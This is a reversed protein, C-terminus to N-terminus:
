YVVTVTFSGSYSGVVQTASLSARAAGVLLLESGGAGITGNTGPYSQFSGVSIEKDASGGGATIMKVTGDSPLTISYARGPDGAVTFSGNEPSESTGPAVTKTNDGQPASGFDLDSAKTISLAAFVSQLANAVASAAQAPNTSILFMSSVLPLIVIKKAFSKSMIKEGTTLANGALCFVRIGEGM